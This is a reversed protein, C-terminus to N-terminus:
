NDEKYLGSMYITIENITKIVKAYCEPCIDEYVLDTSGKWRTHVAGTCETSNIERSCVDCFKKTM